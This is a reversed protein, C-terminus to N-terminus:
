KGVRKSRSCFRLDAWSSHDAVHNHAPGPDAILYLRVTKGRWPSLDATLTTWKHENTQLSAVPHRGKGDGVEIRYLTGDGLSSRDVKGVDVAFDVRTQWNFLQIGWM